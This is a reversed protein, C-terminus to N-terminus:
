YYIPEYCRDVRKVFFIRIGVSGFTLRRTHTASLFLRGLHKNYGLEANYYIGKERSVASNGNDDFSLYTTKAYGVSPTISVPNNIGITYGVSGFVLTPKTNSMLPTNYGAAVYVAKHIFGLDLGARTPNFNLSLTPQAYTGSTILLLILLKIIKSM